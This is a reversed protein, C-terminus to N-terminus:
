QVMQVKKTRVNNLEYFDNPNCHRHCWGDTHGRFHMKDVINKKAMITATDTLMSRVPNTCFKKLHCADDYVLFEANTFTCSKCLENILSTYTSECTCTPQFQIYSSLRSFLPRCFQQVNKPHHSVTIPM